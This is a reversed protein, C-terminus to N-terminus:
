PKPNVLLCRCQYWTGEEYGQALAVLSGVIERRHCSLLNLRLGKKNFNVLEM